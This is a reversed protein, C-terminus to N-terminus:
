DVEAAKAKLAQLEADKASLQKKLAANKEELKQNLGQIAALAMGEADATGISKDDSGLGFAAKFDQAMPGIHTSDKKTKYNWQSIPLAAVKDLVQRPDVATFNEKANRDSWEAIDGWVTLDHGVSLDHTIGVDNSFGVFDNRNRVSMIAEFTGNTNYKGIEFWRDGVGGLETPIGVRLNLPEMFMGRRGLGAKDFGASADFPDWGHTIMPGDYGNLSVGRPSTIGLGGGARALCQSSSTSNFHPYQSDAWVFSGTGTAENNLGGPVVAGKGATNGYGGGVTGFDGTVSNPHHSDRGVIKPRLLYGGGAITAGVAGSAVQNSLYSGIANMSIEWSTIGVAQRAYELRLGRANNAKLEPPQGDSTGLFSAGASTGANGNLSRSNTLRTGPTASILLDNETGLSISLNSGASLAVTDRLGNLSRVVQGSAINAAAITNPALSAPRISAPPVDSVLDAFWAFPTARIPQRPTLITFSGVGSSRVGLELWYDKHDTPKGGFDVIATFLGNSVVVELNTVPPNDALGGAVNTSIQFTFDYTGNAAGSTTNLRGQYTLSTGLSPAAAISAPTASLVLTLLHYKPNM